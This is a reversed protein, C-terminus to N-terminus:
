AGLVVRFREPTDANPRCAARGSCKADLRISERLPSMALEPEPFPNARGARPARVDDTVAQDVRVDTRVTSCRGFTVSRRIPYRVARTISLTIRGHAWAQINTVVVVCLYLSVEIVTLHSVSSSRACLIEWEISEIRKVINLRVVYEFM